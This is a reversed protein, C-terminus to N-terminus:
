KFLSTFEGVMGPFGSSEAPSDAIYCDQTFFPNYVKCNDPKAMAPTASVLMATTLTSVVAIRRAAPPVKKM